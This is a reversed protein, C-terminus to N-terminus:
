SGLKSYFGQDDLSVSLCLKYKLIPSSSRGPDAPDRWPVLWSSLEAPDLGRGRIYHERKFAFKAQWLGQHRDGMVHCQARAVAYGQEHILMRYKGVGDRDKVWDNIRDYLLRPQPGYCEPNIEPVACALLDLIRCADSSSKELRNGCAELHETIDPTEILVPRYHSSEQHAYILHGGIEHGAIELHIPSTM